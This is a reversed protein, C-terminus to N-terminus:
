LVIVGLAHMVIYVPKNYIFYIEIYVYAQYHIVDKWNQYHTKEGYCLSCRFAELGTGLVGVKHQIKRTTHINQQIFDDKKIFFM